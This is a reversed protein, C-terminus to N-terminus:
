WENREMEEKEMLEHTFPNSCRSPISLMLIGDGDVIKFSVGDAPVEPLLCFGFCVFLRLPLNSTISSIEMKFSLIILDLRPTWLMSGAEIYTTDGALCFPQFAVLDFWWTLLTLPSFHWTSSVFFIEFPSRELLGVQSRSPGSHFGLFTFISLRSDSTQSQCMRCGIRWILWRIRLAEWSRWSGFLWCRRNTNRAFMVWIWRRTGRQMTWRDTDGAKWGCFTM